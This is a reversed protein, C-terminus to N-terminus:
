KALTYFLYRPKSQPKMDYALLICMSGGAQFVPNHGINKETFCYYKTASGEPNLGLFETKVALLIKQQSYITDTYFM